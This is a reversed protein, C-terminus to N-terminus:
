HALRAGGHPHASPGPPSAQAGRRPRATRRARAGEGAPAESAWAGCPSPERGSWPMTPPGAGEKQPRVVTGEGVVAMTSARAEARNNREPPMTAASRRVGREHMAAPRAACACCETSERGGMSARMAVAARRRHAPRREVGERGDVRMSIQPGDWRCGGAPGVRPMGGRCGAERTPSAPLHPLPPPSLAHM